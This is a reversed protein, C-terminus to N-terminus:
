LPKVPRAAYRSACPFLGTSSSASLNFGRASRSAIMFARQDAPLSSQNQLKSRDVGIVCTKSNAFSGNGACGGDQRVRRQSFGSCVTITQCTILVECEQSTKQYPRCRSISTDGIGEGADMALAAGFDM